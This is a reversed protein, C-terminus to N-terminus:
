SCILVGTGQIRDAKLDQLAQNASELPYIAIKPRIPIKAAAEFLSFGDQRTNATVSRLEKEYFLHHEYDLAPIPSLHIGGIALTGGKELASLAQPVLEGAPAFLIASDLGEPIQRSDNSAWVAGLQQAFEQHKRDRTIVYVIARKELALQIVIHAASGFGFIGLKGDRAPLNSRNLARFGIIGSCLLPAASLDDFVDPITYAFDERVTMYEAYGGQESFGSYKSHPCLNEKERHCFVCDGCTSRLWAVGVRQGLKLRSCGAGLQDVFGIAQHGPIIPMKKQPLDGEIVHLDTRCIACCRVKIRVEKFQPSPLSVKKLKLPSSEIHSNSELLMAMMM